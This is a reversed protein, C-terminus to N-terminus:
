EKSQFEKALCPLLRVSKSLLFSPLPLPLFNLESMGFRILKSKCLHPSYLPAPSAGQFNFLERSRLPVSHFKVETRESLTQCDLHRLSKSRM